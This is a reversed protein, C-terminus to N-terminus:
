FAECMVEGMESFNKRMTLAVKSNKLLKMM